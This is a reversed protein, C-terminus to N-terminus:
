NDGLRPLSTPQYRLILLFTSYVLSTVVLVIVLSLAPSEIFSLRNVYLVTICLLANILQPLLYWLGSFKIQLRQYLHMYNRTLLNERLHLRKVIVYFVDLCPLALPILFEVSLPVPLLWYHLGMLLIYSSFVFSGSDGLYLCNKNKNFLSFALVFTLVTINLLIAWDDKVLYVALFVTELGILTALNLDAGDYFNTVNVLLVELVIATLVLLFIISPSLLTKTSSFFAIMALASGCSVMLAIRYAPKLTIVDDLWYALSFGLILILSATIPFPSNAFFCGILLGLSIFVGFGTPVNNPDFNKWLIKYLVGLSLSGLFILTIFLVPFQAM